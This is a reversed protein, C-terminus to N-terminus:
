DLNLDSCVANSRGSKKIEEFGERYNRQWSASHIVYLQRWPPSLKLLFGSLTPSLLCLKLSSSGGCVRASLADPEQPCCTAMFNM